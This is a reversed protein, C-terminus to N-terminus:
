QIAQPAENEIWIIRRFGCMPCHLSQDAPDSILSGTKGIWDCDTCTVPAAMKREVRHKQARTEAETEPMKM